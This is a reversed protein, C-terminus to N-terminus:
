GVDLLQEAPLHFSLFQVLQYDCFSTVQQVHLALNDSNNRRSAAEYVKQSMKLVVNSSEHQVGSAIQAYYISADQRNASLVATLAAYVLVFSSCGFSGSTKTKLM